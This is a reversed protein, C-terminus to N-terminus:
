SFGRGVAQAERILDVIRLVSSRGKGARVTSERKSGLVTGPCPLLALIKARRTCRIKKALARMKRPDTLAEPSGPVPVKARKALTRAATKDGLTELLHASPGVLTIGAAECARPLAPNESLFGYGPHIADVGKERARAVIGDVYLYAQVPGLGEGIQYAEDAKFRHLSLRDEKSYNRGHAPRARHCGAHDPHSNRRSKFGPTEADPSM